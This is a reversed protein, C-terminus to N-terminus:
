DGVTGTESECRESHQGVHETLVDRREGGSVKCGYRCSVYIINRM